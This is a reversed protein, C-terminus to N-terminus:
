STPLVRARVRATMEEDSPDIMFTLRKLPVEKNNAESAEELVELDFAANEPAEITLELRNKEGQMVARAGDVTTDLWTVFAEEVPKPDGSFTFTDEVEIEGEPTVTLARHAVALEPVDYAREIRM